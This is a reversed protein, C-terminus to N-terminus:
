KTLLWGCFAAFIGLTFSIVVYLLAVGYKHDNILQLCEVSLASFTTFGGCVGTAAFLRVEPSISNKLFLGAVIGILFSGAVNVLLTAYPFTQNRFLMAVLYRLVSGIMGGAAVLLLNRIM